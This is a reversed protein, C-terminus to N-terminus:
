GFLQPWTKPGVVGDEVLAAAKQFQVVAQRTRPGFVSDPLARLCRKSLLREQLITVYFGRSGSGLVIQETPATPRMNLKEWTDSGVVGDVTLGFFYQFFRIGAQTGSGFKGDAVARIQNQCFRVDDGSMMPKALKLVRREPQAQASVDPPAPDQKGALRRLLHRKEFRGPCATSVLDSHVYIEAAAVRFNRQWEKILAEATDYQAETPYWDFHDAGTLCLGLSHRNHGRTHAGVLGEARGHELTGDRRIVKHYGIQAFGRKRHWDDITAAPVDPSASYHIVIASIARM